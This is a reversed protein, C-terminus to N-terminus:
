SGVTSVDVLVEELTKGVCAGSSVVFLVVVRCGVDELWGSDMVFLSGVAADAGPVCVNQVM